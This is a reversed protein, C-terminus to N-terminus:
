ASVATAGMEALGARAHHRWFPTDFPLAAYQLRTAAHTRDVTRALLADYVRPADADGCLADAAANGAFFGASLANFLGQSTIPDFAAAADGTALWGPGSTQDLVASRCDMLWPSPSLGNLDVLSLKRRTSDLFASPAAAIRKATGPDTVFGTTSGTRHPVRYWWGEPTAETQMVANPPAAAQWLVAVLAPGHFLNATQRRAIHAPRGTADIVYDAQRTESDAQAQMTIHWGSESHTCHTARATHLRVGLDHARAQMAKALTARDLGWGHLGLGPHAGHSQLGAAGWCSVVDTISLSDRLVGGLGLRRVIQAAGHALLEGRSTSTRRSPDVLTVLVGREALAIAAALGAPGGGAILVDPM